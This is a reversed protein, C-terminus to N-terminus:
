TYLHNQSSWSRMMMPFRPLLISYYYYYLVFFFFVVVFFVPLLFDVTTVLCCLVWSWWNFRGTEIIIAHSLGFLFLEGGCHGFDTELINNNFFSVHFGAANGKIIYHLIVYYYCYTIFCYHSFCCFLYMGTLLFLFVSILMKM